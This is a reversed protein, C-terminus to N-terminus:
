HLVGIQKDGSVHLGVDEHNFLLVMRLDGVSSSGVGVPFCSPELM